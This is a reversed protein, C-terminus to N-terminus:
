TAVFFPVFSRRRAISRLLAREARDAALSVATAADTGTHEVILGGFAGRVRLSVLKDPGGRPGNVDSITCNVAHIESSIRAFALEIRRLIQDRLTPTLVVHRSRLVLKM